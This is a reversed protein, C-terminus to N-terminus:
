KLIRNVSLENYMVLRDRTPIDEWKTNNIYVEGEFIQITNRNGFQVIGRGEGARLLEKKAVRSMKEMAKNYAMEVNMFTPTLDKM